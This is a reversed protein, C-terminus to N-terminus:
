VGRDSDVPPQWGLAVLADFLPARLVPRMTADVEVWEAVLDLSLLTTEGADAVVTLSRVVPAIEQGDVLVSSGAGGELPLRTPLRLQARM